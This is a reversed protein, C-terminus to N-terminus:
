TFIKNPNEKISIGKEKLEEPLQPFNENIRILKAKNNLMTIKEFSWRVVSPVEFDVGLEILVLKKNLTLQLFRTYLAWNDLYGREDYAYKAGHVNVDMKEKCLKCEPILSLVSSIDIDKGAEMMKYVYDYIESYSDMADVPSPKDQCECINQLRLISGCPAVSKDFLIDSKNMIGDTNLNVVFYRKKNILEALKNYISIRDQLCANEGKEMEYAYISNIIFQDALSNEESKHALYWKFADNEAITEKIDVAMGRGIGVLVVEAGNVYESLENFIEGM